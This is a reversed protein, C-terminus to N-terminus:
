AVSPNTRRMAAISGACLLALALVFLGWEGIAPVPAIIPTERQNTVVESSNSACPDTGTAGVLGMSYGIQGPQDARPM